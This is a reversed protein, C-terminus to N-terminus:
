RARAAAINALGRKIVAPRYFLRRALTWMNHPLVFKGGSVRAGAQRLAAAQRPFAELLDRGHRRRFRALDVSLGDTFETLASYIMEDEPSCAIGREAPCLGRGARALWADWGARNIYRAAGFARSVAGPGLGLVSRRASLDTSQRNRSDPTRGMSDSDIKIYGAKALLRFGAARLAEVEREDGSRGGALAHVTYPTNIFTNLHVQDPRLKMVKKLDALFSTRDQGPLGCILDINVGIGRAKLAAHAAAVAALGQRRANASLVKEDLSQVGICVRDVGCGAWADLMEPTVDEPHLELVTQASRPIYFRQHLLGFFARTEEPTMMSPTGGGIYLTSFRTKKFLPAYFAAEKELAALYRRFSDARKEGSSGLATVPLFCFRCRARCFPVNVFLGLERTLGLSRRWAKKISTGKRSFDEWSGFPPYQEAYGTYDLRRLATLFADFARESLEAM